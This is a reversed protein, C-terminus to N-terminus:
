LISQQELSSKFALLKTALPSVGDPLNTTPSSIKFYENEIRRKITQRSYFFRWRQLNIQTAFWVMERVSMRFRPTLIRVASGGNGRAVFSWPQVCAQGFTTLTIGGNEFVEQIDTPEVLRVISNHMDGSSVYAVDGEPFNKEGASKGNDVRFFYSLSETVGLPLAPKDNWALGFTPPVKTALEPFQVVARFISRVVDSQAADMTVTSVTPQPLWQQPSWEQGDTLQTGHISVALHSSFAKNYRFNDFCEGVTTLQEGICPVRRGKLKKYGDNWIRAMFVDANGHPVHAQAIIVSTPAATPYFIDEPLSIIALLRHKKLFRKRWDEHEEDAFVGAFIVAALLGTPKLTDMAANIFMSEPEEKQSFPPNLYARDFQKAVCLNEGFCNANEINSKGDGRFFMNLSALAWITPNTDFGTLAKKIEERQADSIAQNNMADFAAVLFGGTGSAIDIVKHTSEIGTLRVCYRTIHRPTFVIGLSNNDYGYRLFAEYFMGLFDTDSKM